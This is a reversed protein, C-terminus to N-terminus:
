RGACAPAGCRFGREASAARTRQAMDLYQDREAAKKQLEEVQVVSLTAEAAEKAPDTKTENM